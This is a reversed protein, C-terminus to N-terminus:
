PLSALAAAPAPDHGPRLLLLQPGEAVLAARALGLFLGHEVIGPMAELARALSEPETILGFQCDILYNGQDTQAVTSRNTRDHRLMPKAGLAELRDMVLPMAFPIVELPLPFQGLAAVRKSSDGIILLYNSAAAIVKERLLAGGGGKTLALEPGIEDAGDVTLDLRLGREPEILPIGAATALLRSESSTPVGVLNLAEARLREGLAAIFYAATSGSGIGLRSQDPVLAAAARGVLAKESDLEASSKATAM